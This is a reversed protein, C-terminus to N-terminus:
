AARRYTSAWRQEQEIAYIGEEVTYLHEVNANCKLGREEMVQRVADRAKMTPFFMQRRTFFGSGNVPVQVTLTYVTKM